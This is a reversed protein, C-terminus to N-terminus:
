ISVIWDGTLSVDSRGVLIVQGDGDLTIVVDGDVRAVTYAAGGGIAVRDGEARNFDVIRDIGAGVFSYFTDAGGGGSIMDDGRDGSLFDAGLGGSLSDADQGGLMTDAGDGGDLLDRGMNGYVLDSGAQGYLVDDHQGGVVWDDGQGGFLTDAGMNGHMDDFGSGGSLSDDGGEGRLFDNGVGGLITDSGGGALIRDGGTNGALTNAAANGILTDDGSGAEVNEIVTSFAIGLNDRGTYLVGHHESNDFGRAIADAFEPLKATWFAQQAERTYIAISSYAGPTLDVLSPRSHASLDIRDIGGADYISTLFPTDEIWRYTDAGAATTPNAGYLTQLALIDFVMPQAVVLREGRTMMGDGYRSFSLTEVDEAPTYSMVTYRTSDFGASLALEHEFPHNLGLAHGLEHLVVPLVTEGKEFNWGVGLTSKAMVDDLWIDGARPDAGEGISPPPSAYGGWPDADVFAIRIDGQQVSDVTERIPTAILREYSAVFVRVAAAQDDTLFGFGPRRPENGWYEKWESGLEPYGEWTSTAGPISFTIVPGTWKTNPFLMGDLIQETTPSAM